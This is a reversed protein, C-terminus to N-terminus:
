RLSKENESARSWSMDADKAEESMSLKRAEPGKYKGNRQRFSGDGDGKRWM